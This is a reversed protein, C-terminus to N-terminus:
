FYNLFLLKQLILFKILFESANKETIFYNKLWLVAKIIICFSYPELYFVGGKKIM